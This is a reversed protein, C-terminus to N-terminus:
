MMGHGRVIITRRIMETLKKICLNAHLETANERKSTVVIFRNKMIFVVLQVGTANVEPLTEAPNWIGADPIKTHIAAPTVVTVNEEKFTLVNNSSMNTNVLKDETVNGLKFISACKESRSQLIPLLRIPILLTILTRNRHSVPLLTDKSIGKHLHNNTDVAMDVAAMDVVVMDVVVLDVVVLDVVM